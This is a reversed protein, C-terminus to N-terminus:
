DTAESVAPHQVGAQESTNSSGDWNSCDWTEAATDTGTSTDPDENGDPGSTDGSPEPEHDPTSLSLSLFPNSRENAETYPDAPSSTYYTGTRPDYETETSGASDLRGRERYSKGSRDHRVIAEKNYLVGGLATHSLIEWESSARSRVVYTGRDNLEAEFDSGDDLSTCPSMFPCMLCHRGAHPYMPTHPNIMDETVLIIKEGEAQVQHDNRYVRTRQIFRDKDINEQYAFANLLEVHKNSSQAPSGYVDVLAQRYLRWNTLQNQAASVTGNKLIRAPKPVTKLHQQYIVGAVPLDYVCSAAWMYASVQPDVLLTGQEIVAATKYEVIWLQMLIPDIIIRDFTGRYVVQDVSALGMIEPDVPLTIEFTVEVQPVGDVVHTQLPDRKELWHMYHDLMGIGLIKLDHFDDPLRDGYTEYSLRSFELFSDQITPQQKPGHYDKFAYHIAEGFWLPAARKIPELGRNL